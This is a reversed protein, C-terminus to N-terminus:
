QDPFEDEVTRAVGITATTVALHGLVLLSGSNAVTITPRHDVPDTWGPQQINNGSAGPGGQGVPDLVPVRVKGILNPHYRRLPEVAVAGGGLRDEEGTRFQM